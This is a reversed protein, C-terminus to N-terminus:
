IAMNISQKKNKEIMAIIQNQVKSFELTLSSTAYKRGGSYNGMAEIKMAQELSSYSSDITQKQFPIKTLPLLGQIFWEKHNMDHIPFSIRTIVDRFIQAYEWTSDGQNQQIEKLKDIGQQKSKPLQFQDSFSKKVKEISPPTDNAISCEVIKM